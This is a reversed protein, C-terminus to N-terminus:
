MRVRGNGAGAGNRFRAAFPYFPVGLTDCLLNAYFVLERRLLDPHTEGRKADRLTMDGMRAAVLFDQAEVLKGFILNDLIGLIMQVRPVAIAPVQNMAEEVLFLTQMPVALGFQLSAASSTSVYGLHFKVRDRDLPSLSM